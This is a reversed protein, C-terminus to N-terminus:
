RAPPSPGLTTSLSMGLLPGVTLLVAVGLRSCGVVGLIWPGALPNRLLTQMLLGSVAMGAGALISALARPLRYGTVISTSVADELGVLARVVSLTPISVTGLSLRVVFVALLIAALTALGLVPTDLRPWSLAAPLVIPASSERGEVAVSPAPMLPTPSM